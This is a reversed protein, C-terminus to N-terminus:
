KPLKKVQGAIQNLPNIGEYVWWNVHEPKDQRFTFVDKYVEYERRHCVYRLKNSKM